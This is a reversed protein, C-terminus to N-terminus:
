KPPMPFKINFPFDNQLTLNRLDERYIAWKESVTNPIDKGQSWDSKELLKNRLDRQLKAVMSKRIEYTQETDNKIWEASWNKGIKKINGIKYIYGDKPKEPMEIETFDDGSNSIQNELYIDSNLEDNKKLYIKM